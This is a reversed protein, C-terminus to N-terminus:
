KILKFLLLQCRELDLNGVIYKIFDNGQVLQFHGHWGQGRWFFFFFFFHNEVSLEHSIVIYFTIVEFIIFFM